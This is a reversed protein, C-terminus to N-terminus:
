ANAATLEYYAFNFGTNPATHVRRCDLGAQEFVGFWDEQPRPMGQKTLVHVLYFDADKEGVRLQPEALLFTKDGDALVERYNHLLEVVAQEGARFHEHMTGVAVLFDCSRASEAWDQPRFADGVVFSARDALGREHARTQALAIADPAIDLGVGRLGVDERCLDLVLGGTGCGLDLVSRAGREKMVDSVIRAGFSRFLVECRRGLAEANRSVDKEYVAEGTMLPAMDHLVRGYAEVYYGLLSESLEGLLVEGRETLRVSEDTLEVVGRIALFRLVRRTIAENDGPPEVTDLDVWERRLQQAVGARDMAVLATCLVYTAAMGGPEAMTAWAVQADDHLVEVSEPTVM